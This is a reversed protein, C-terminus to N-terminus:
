AEFTGYRKVINEVAIAIPVGAPPGSAGNIAPGGETPGSQTAGIKNPESV